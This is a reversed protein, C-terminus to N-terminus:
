KDGRFDLVQNNKGRGFCPKKSGIKGREGPKRRQRTALPLHDLPESGAHLEHEAQKSWDDELVVDFM